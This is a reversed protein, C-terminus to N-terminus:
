PHSLSRSARDLLRKHHIHHELDQERDYPTPWDPRARRTHEYLARSAEMSARPGRAHFEEAHFRLKLSEVERRDRRAFARIADADM